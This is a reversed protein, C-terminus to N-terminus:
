RWLAQRSVLQAHRHALGESPPAILYLLSIRLEQALLQM